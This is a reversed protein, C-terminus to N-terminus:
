CKSSQKPKYTLNQTKFKQKREKDNSIIGNM